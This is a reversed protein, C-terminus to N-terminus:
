DSFSFIVQGPKASAIRVLQDTMKGDANLLKLYAGQRLASAIRVLQDTSKDDAKLEISAGASVIRVLQDTMKTM